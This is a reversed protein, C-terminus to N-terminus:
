LYEKIYRLSKNHLTVPKSIITRRKKQMLAVLNYGKGLKEIEITNCIHRANHMTGFSGKNVTNSHTNSIRGYECKVIYYRGEQCIRIEYFKNSGRTKCELRIHYRTKM